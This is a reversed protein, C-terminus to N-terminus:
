SALERRWAVHPLLREDDLVTSVLDSRAMGDFFDRHGRWVSPYFHRFIFGFFDEPTMPAECAIRCTSVNLTLHTAPHGSKASSPDYDFRIMSQMTIEAHPQELHLDLIDLLGDTLLLDQDIVYPCPVYALRHQVIGGNAVRYRLQLLAGDPLLASYENAGVWRRYTNITPPDAFDLFTALPTPSRWWVSEGDIAVPNVLLVIERKVLESLLERVARALANTTTM